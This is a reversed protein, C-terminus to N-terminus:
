ASSSGQNELETRGKTTRSSAAESGPRLRESAPTPTSIITVPPEVGAALADLEKAMVGVIAADMERSLRQNTTEPRRRPAKPKGQLKARAHQVTRKSINHKAAENVVQELVPDKVSGVVRGNEGRKVSRAVTARDTSQAAEITKVILEAQEQKSLHRRRINASIVLAAPDRLINSGTEIRTTGIWRCNAFFEFRCGVERGDATVLQDSWSLFETDPKPLTVGLSALAALRNRGDLVQFM